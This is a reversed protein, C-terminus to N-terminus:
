EKIFYFVSSNKTKIANYEDITGVWFRNKFNNLETNTAQLSDVTAYSSLDMVTSPMKKTVGYGIVKVSTITMEVDFSENLDNILLEMSDKIIRASFSIWEMDGGFPTISDEKLLIDVGDNICVCPITIGNIIVNYKDGVTFSDNLLPVSGLPKSDANVDMTGTWDVFNVLGSEFPKNKIFGPEGESADWDANTGGLKNLDEKTAYNELETRDAKDLLTNSIGDLMVEIQKAADDVDNWMRDIAETVAKQSMPTSDDDGVEQALDDTSIFTTTNTTVSYDKADIIVEVIQQWLFGRLTIVDPNSATQTILGGGNSIAEHGLAIVKDSEVAECLEEFADKTMSSPAGAMAVLWTQVVEDPVVYVERGSEVAAKVEALESQMMVLATGIEEYALDKFQKLNEPSVYKKKSM